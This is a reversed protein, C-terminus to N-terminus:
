GLKTTIEKLEVELLKKRNQLVLMESFKSELIAMISNKLIPEGILNIKSFYSNFLDLDYQNENLNQIEDALNNIYNQAFAGMFSENLFFENALLDHINAGFSHITDIEKPIGKELKLVNTPPIDSLIFPSHTAFLINIQNVGRIRGISLRKLSDILDAIFIRQFNPHFYLEVEDLIINISNYEKRKLVASKLKPQLFVSDINLIHYLITQISHIKQQEGSSLQNFNTFKNRTTTSLLIDFDFVSPPIFNIYSLDLSKLVKGRDIKQNFDQTFKNESNKNMNVQEALKEVSTLFRINGDKNEWIDVNIEENNFLIKEGKKGAKISDLTNYKLYNIAQKLKFTIHSNDLFLEKVLEEIKQIHVTEFIRHIQDTTNSTYKKRYLPYHCLIKEVKNIVYNEVIEQAPISNEELISENLNFQKYIEKQIQYGLSDSWNNFVGEQNRRFRINKIKNTNLTFLFYKVTQSNSVIRHKNNKTKKLLNSVFRNKALYEERNIDFKGNERMPNLVIPAQYGDNKHFLPNIWDGTIRDNLGYISYNVAISYFFSNLLEKEKIIKTKNTLPALTIKDDGGNIRLSYYGDSNEFYIDLKLNDYVNQYSNFIKNVVAERNKHNEPKLFFDAMKKQVAQYKEEATGETSLLQNLNHVVGEFWQNETQYVGEEHKRSDERAAALENRYFDVGDNLFMKNEESIIFIAGYLLELLTSKGSGNEGVIASINVSVPRNYGGKFSYIDVNDTLINLSIKDSNKIIKKPLIELDNYFQYVRGKELVKSYQDDCDILPRIGLLRFGSM